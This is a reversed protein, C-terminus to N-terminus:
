LIAERESAAAPGVPKVPPAIYVDNIEVVLTIDVAVETEGVVAHVGAGDDSIGVADRIAGLARSSGTGLSYVGPVARAAIGAVKAVATESIVTRGGGTGSLAPQTGIVAPDPNQYEM